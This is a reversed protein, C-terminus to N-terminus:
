AELLAPFGAVDPLVATPPRAAADTETSIGTLVLAAPSGLRRAMAIELGLDDGVVATRSPTSGLVRCMERLAIPSPKGLIVARAGTTQRIGAM